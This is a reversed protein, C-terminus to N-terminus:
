GLLKEGVWCALLGGEESVIADRTKNLLEDTPAGPNILVCSRALLRDWSLTRSSEVKDRFKKIFDNSLASCKWRRQNRVFVSLCKAGIDDALQACRPLGGQGSIHSGVYKASRTSVVLTPRSAIISGSSEASTSASDPVCGITSGNASVHSDEANTEAIGSDGTRACIGALRRRKDLDAYNVEPPHTHLEKRKHQRINPLEVTSAPELFSNLNNAAEAATRRSSQQQAANRTRPRPM